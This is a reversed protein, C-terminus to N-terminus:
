PKIGGYEALMKAFPNAPANGDPNAKELKDPAPTRKGADANELSAKRVAAIMESMHVVPDNELGFSKRLALEVEAEKTKIIAEIKGDITKEFTALKSKMVEEVVETIRDILNKDAAQKNEDTM